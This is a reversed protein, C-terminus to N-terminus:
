EIGRGKYTAGQTNSHIHMSAQNYATKDPSDLTFLRDYPVVKLWGSPTYLRIGEEGIEEVQIVTGCLPTQSPYNGPDQLQWSSFLITRNLADCAKIQM